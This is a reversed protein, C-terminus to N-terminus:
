MEEMSDREGHGRDDLLQNRKRRLAKNRLESGREHGSERKGLIVGPVPRQVLSQELHTERGADWAGFKAQASVAWTGSWSM